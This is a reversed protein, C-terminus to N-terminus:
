VCTIFINFISMVIINHYLVSVDAENSSVAGVSTNYGTVILGFSHTEHFVVRLTGREQHSRDHQRVPQLGHQEGEDQHREDSQHDGVRRQEYGECDVGSDNADDAIDHGGLALIVDFLFYLLRHVEPIVEAGPLHPQQDDHADREAELEQTKNAEDHELAGRLVGESERQKSPM